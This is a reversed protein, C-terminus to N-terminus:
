TNLSHFLSIFEHLSLQEPRSRHDLGLAALCSEVKEPPYLEKLSARLMKRRHQFATRTLKFFDTESSVHPPQKLDLRVIASHVSPRPFFCTPKVTFCYHPTSYYSLFLTFSSYESTDKESVFREALEKQVMVTLSEICAHLPALMSIIPTSIQYPLNAVVKARRGESLHKRLFSEYPFDLADDEIVTLRNDETQLRSLTAAFHSDKEIACVDAGAALLAQTLVGPGPGIEIVLDGKEIKAASIIKQLINGDILFNQSLAKKARIGEENLFQHLETPRFLHGKNGM